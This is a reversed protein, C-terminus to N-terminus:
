GKAFAAWVAEARLRNIAFLELDKEEKPTCGRFDIGAARLM